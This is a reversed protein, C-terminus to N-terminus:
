PPEPCANPQDVPRDPGPMWPIAFYTTNETIPLEFPSRAQGTASGCFGGDTTVAGLLIDADVDIAGVQLKFGPLWVEFRGDETVPASFYMRPPADVPDSAARLTGDITALKEGDPGPGERYFLSIWLRVAIAGNLAGLFFYDGTLDRRVSPYRSLDPPDPRTPGGDVAADSVGADPVGMDPACPDGPCQFTLDDLVLAGDDDRHAAFTSGDLHLELPSTVTGVADGCWQDADLTRADMTVTAIVPSASDIVDTGLNLPDATLIFRGDEDVHAQTEVLPTADLPQTHLWFRAVYDVPPAGDEGDAYDLTIRLGLPIGGKLLARILWRGRLDALASPGGVPANCASERRAATRARFDDYDSRPTHESCALTLLALALLRRKM